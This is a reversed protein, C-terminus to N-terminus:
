SLGCRIKLPLCLISSVPCLLAQSPLYWMNESDRVSFIDSQATLVDTESDADGEQLEGAQLLDFYAGKKLLLQEHNGEEVVRGKDLVVINDASRVTSLRHAILITTRFDSDEGLAAVVRGESETDVASTAEDLILIKPNSVLARAIAIRQRQGGSLSTNGVLTDYGNPLSEIFDHADAIKAAREVRARTHRKDISQINESDSLRLLGFAINDFISAAFLCPHQNVVGIQQRLWRLNLSTLEHGDLLISGELPDYFREVLDVISSKGSESSGVLATTTGQPFQLDLNHLVITDPRTPYAHKVGRVQISGELIDLTVGVESSSDVSSTQDILWYVKQVAALAKTFTEAHSSIGIMTFVATGIVISVVFVEQFSAKGAGLLRSGQWFALAIVLYNIYVLVGLTVGMLSRQRIADKTAATLHQKFQVVVADEAGLAKVNRISSFAEEGVGTSKAVANLIPQSYKKNLKYTSIVLIAAAPVSWCLMLALRWSLVFAIIWAGGFMGLAHITRAIKESIGRQIANISTTLTENCSGPGTHAFYSIPQRLLALFYQSRIRSSVRSGVYVFGGTGLGTTVLVASALSIMLYLIPHIDAHPHTSNTSPSASFIKAAFRAYVIQLSTDAIDCM